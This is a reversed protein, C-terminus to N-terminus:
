RDSRVNPGGSENREAITMGRDLALVPRSRAVHEGVASVKMEGEGMGDVGRPRNAAVRRNVSAGRNGGGGAGADTPSKGPSQGFAPGCTHM